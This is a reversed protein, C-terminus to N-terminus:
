QFTPVARDGRRQRKLCCLHRVRELNMRGVPNGAGTHPSPPILPLGGRAGAAGACGPYITSFMASLVSIDGCRHNQRSM